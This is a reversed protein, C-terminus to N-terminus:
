IFIKYGRVTKQLKSDWYSRPECPLYKEIDTAKATKKFGLDRYIGSLLDKLSASDIYGFTKLKFDQQLCEIIKDDFDKVEDEVV